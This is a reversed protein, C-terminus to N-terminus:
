GLLDIGQIISQLGAQRVKFRTYSIIEIVNLLM